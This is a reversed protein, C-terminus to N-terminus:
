IEMLRISALHGDAGDPDSYFVVPQASIAGDQHRFVVNRPTGRLNLVMERGAVASWAALAELTARPAWASDEGLSELTIHRGALRTGTDILLAGTLSYAIEQEVPSWSFEDSWYLDTPLFVVDGGYSLTIM